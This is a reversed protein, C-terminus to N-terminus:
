APKVDDIATHQWARATHVRRQRDIGPTQTDRIQQRPVMLPDAQRVAGLFPRHGMDVSETAHRRALEQATATRQRSVGASPAVWAWAEATVPMSETAMVTLLM